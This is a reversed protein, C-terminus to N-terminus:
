TKVEEKNEIEIYNNKFELFQEETNNKTGYIKHFKRHLEKTLCVGFGYKYHLELCKKEISKIEIQSYLGVIKYIPLKLEFLTEKVIDSFNRSYHHVVDFPKGTLVCKYNYHKITDSYWPSINARLYLLLTTIGCQWNWNNEGSNKELGCYYCGGNGGILTTVSLKQIHEPHKECIYKMKANMNKYEEETSILRYNRNEFEMIAFDYTHRDTNSKNAKIRGCVSCGKGTKFNTYSITRIEDPHINCKYKMLIRSDIFENELLLYNREVFENFVLEYSLHRQGSCYYCGRGTHLNGYTIYQVENPHSSCIYALKNNAGTYETSILTYGRMNFKEKIFDYELKKM